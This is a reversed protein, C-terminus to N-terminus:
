IRIKEEYSYISNVVKLVDDETNTSQTSMTRFEFIVTTKDTDPIMTSDIPRGFDESKWSVAEYYHNMTMEPNNPDMHLIDALYHSFSYLFCKDKKPRGAATTKQRVEEIYKEGELIKGHQDFSAKGALFFTQFTKFLNKIDIEAELKTLFKTIFENLNQEQAETTKVKEDLKIITLIQTKYKSLLLDPLKDTKEKITTEYNHVSNIVDFINGSTEFMKILNEVSQIVASLTNHVVDNIMPEIVAEFEKFESKTNKIVKGSVDKLADEVENIFIDQLKHLEIKRQQEWKDLVAKLTNLREEMPAIPYSNQSSSTADTQKMDCVKYALYLQYYPVVTELLDKIISKSVVNLETKRTLFPSFAKLFAYNDLKGYVKPSDSM